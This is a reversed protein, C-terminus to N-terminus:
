IEEHIIYPCHLNEIEKKIKYNKVCTKCIFINGDLHIITGALEKILFCNNCKYCKKYNDDLQKILEETQNNMNLNTQMYPLPM